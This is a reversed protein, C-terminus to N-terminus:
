GGGSRSGRVQSSDLLLLARDDKKLFELSNEKAKVLEDIASSKRSRLGPM